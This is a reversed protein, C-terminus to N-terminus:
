GPVDRVPLRCSLLPVAGDVVSDLVDRKTDSSARTGTALRDLLAACIEKAM